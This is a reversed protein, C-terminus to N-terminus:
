RRNESCEGHAWRNDQMHQRISAKENDTTVEMVEECESCRYSVLYRARADAYGKKYGQSRAQKRYQEAQKAQPEALGLGLMLIDTASRGDARKVAAIRDYVSRAVRCSVVPHNKEYRDRSPPKHKKERSM